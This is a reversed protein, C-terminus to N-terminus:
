AKDNKIAKLKYKTNTVAWTIYDNVGDHFRYAWRWEDDELVIDGNVNHKRILYTVNRFYDTGDFRLDYLTTADAKNLVDEYLEELEPFELCLELICKLPVKVNCTILNLSM